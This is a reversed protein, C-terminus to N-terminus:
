SSHMRLMAASAHKSLAAPAACGNPVTCSSHPSKHICYVRCLIPVIRAYRKPLSRAKDDLKTVTMRYEQRLTQIQQKQQASEAEGQAARAKLEVLLAATATLEETAQAERVQM